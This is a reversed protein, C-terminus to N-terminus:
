SIEPRTTAAPRPPDSHRPAETMTGATIGHPSHAAHRAPRGVIQRRCSMGPFSACPPSAVCIFTGARPRAGDRVHQRGADREGRQRDHGVRDRCWVFRNPACTQTGLVDGYEDPTPPTPPKPTWNAAAMPAATTAISTL